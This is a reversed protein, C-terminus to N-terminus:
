KDALAVWDWMKPKNKFKMFYKEEFIRWPYEIKMFRINKFGAEKLRYEIEFKYYHKQKGEEEMFGLLFDYKKDEINRCVKIRAKSHSCRKLESEYALMAKYLVAELSPFVAILMGKRRLVKRIEKLSTKIDNISPMLVSNVAFALDFKNYLGSLDRMDKKAIKANKVNKEAIKLMQESFDLAYVSKFNKELLPILNGVGTGIDIVDLNKRNRIKSIIKPIPNIVGREFPSTLNDFYEKAIGEWEKEKM